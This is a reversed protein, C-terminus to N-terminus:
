WDGSAGGGGFSGGGASFGGGGDGFGGGRSSSGGRGWGGFIPPVIVTPSNWGRRGGATYGMGRARAGSMAERALLLGIVGFIALVGLTFPSVGSGHRPAPPVTPRAGVPTGPKEIRAYVADAAAAIGDAYRGERFRPAIVERNIQSAIADPIVPELGYGVEMRVRREKLFVLLIVGNDLGKQGIRWKEALHIGFDELSEGELSPFIAVVMQAGNTAQEHAALSQELRQRADPSLVHAYDNV